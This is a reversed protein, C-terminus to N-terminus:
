SKSKVLQHQVQQYLKYLHKCLGPRLKPNKVVPLEGNSYDIDAAGKDHNAVEHVYMFDECSCSVKCHLKSDEFVVVTTYKAPNLKKHLKGDARVEHTSYSRCAIFGKGNQLHGAKLNMLKVYRANNQRFLDTSRALQVLTKM